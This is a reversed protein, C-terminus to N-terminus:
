EGERRPLPNPPSAQLVDDDQTITHGVPGHLSQSAFGQQLRSCSGIHVLQCAHSTHSPQHRHGLSKMGATLHRIHGNQAIVQRLHVFAATRQLRRADTHVQLWTLHRHAAINDADLSVIDLIMRGPVNSCLFRVHQYFVKLLM